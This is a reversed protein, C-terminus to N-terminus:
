KVGAAACAEAYQQICIDSAKYLGGGVVTVEVKAKTVVIPTLLLSPIHLGNSDTISTATSSIDMGEALQVAISGAADAEPKYPKYVTYTQEGTLVRRVADISADQGGVPVNKIGAAKLADIVAAAMGDNAAYVAQIGDKGLSQIAENMKATAVEPKWQGSQEYAIKKVKGDLVRHAGAKFQAANPDSEAGNIMVVNASSAKPGLADLLSQGQLEGTRGNDFSVYAAVKGEALRDYAVVKVGKAIAADVWPATSKANVPDLLIVKVGKALLDDFQKKQTAENGDANAYSITCKACLGTVTQEILPKDFAEYRTSSTNEPLLLGITKDSNGGASSAQTADTQGCAALTLALSMAATGTAALRMPRNM